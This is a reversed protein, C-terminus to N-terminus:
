FLFKDTKTSLTREIAKEKGYRTTDQYKAGGSIRAQKYRSLMTPGTTKNIVTSIVSLHEIM